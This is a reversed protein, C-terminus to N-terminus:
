NRRSHRYPHPLVSSTPLSTRFGDIDKIAPRIAISLVPFTPGFPSPWQAVTRCTADDTSDSDFNESIYDEWIMQEGIQTSFFWLCLFLGLQLLSSLSQQLDYGTAPRYITSQLVHRDGRRHTARVSRHTDNPIGPSAVQLEENNALIVFEPVCHGATQAFV